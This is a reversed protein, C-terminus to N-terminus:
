ELEIDEIEDVISSQQEIILRLKRKFIKMNKELVERKADIKEARILAENIIKSANNKAENVILVAEERAVKKIENAEKQTVLVIDKLSNDIKEYKELAEKLKAIEKEQKNCKLEINEYYDKKKM